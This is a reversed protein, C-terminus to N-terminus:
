IRSEAVFIFSPYSDMFKEGVSFLKRAQEKCVKMCQRRFTPLSKRRKGFLFDPISSWCPLLMGGAVPFCSLDLTTSVRGSGKVTSTPHFKMVSMLPYHGDNNFTLTDEGDVIVAVGVQADAKEIIAQIQGRLPGSARVSLGVFIFLFFSIYIKM